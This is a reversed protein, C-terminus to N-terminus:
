SVFLRYKPNSICQHKFLVLILTNKSLKMYNFDLLIPLVQSWLCKRDQWWSELSWWAGLSHNSRLTFLSLPSLTSVRARDARLAGNTLSYTLVRGYCQDPVDRYILSLFPNVCLFLSLIFWKQYNLTHFQFHERRRRRQTMSFWLLFTAPKFVLCRHGNRCPTQM